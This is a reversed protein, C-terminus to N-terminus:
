VLEFVLNQFVFKKRKALNETGDGMLTEFTETLQVSDNVKVKKLTRQQPDMCTDWLLEPNMEGLGKFRDVEYKVGKHEAKYEELADDDKLYLSKGRSRIRYLPPCSIYLHGDEILKKMFKYFFTYLLIVIHAGDVDADAMIIIKYYSLDDLIAENGKELRVNTAAIMSKYETNKLTENWTKKQVNLPKGKLPLIAQFRKDRAQKASGGASDGEVIFLECEEPKNSSCHSLKGTDLMKIFNSNRRNKNLQKAQSDRIKMAEAIKMAIKEGVLRNKTFYKDLAEKVWEGMPQRLEPNNLKDKTQGLFEPNGLKSVMVVLNLGEEIDSKKVDKVGEAYKNKKIIEYIAKSLSDMVANLHVGGDSTNINNAFSRISPDYATDYIFAFDLECGIKEIDEKATKLRVIDDILKDKKDL